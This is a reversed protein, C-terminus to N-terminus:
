PTANTFGEDVLKNEVTATVAAVSMNKLAVYVTYLVFIDSVLADYEIIV